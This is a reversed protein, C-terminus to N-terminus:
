WLKRLAGWVKAPFHIHACPIEDNNNNKRWLRFRSALSHGWKASSTLPQTAPSDRQWRDKTESGLSASRTHDKIKKKYEKWMRKGKGSEGKKKQERDQHSVQLLLDEPLNINRPIGAERRSCRSKPSSKAKLNESDSTNRRIALNLPSPFQCLITM